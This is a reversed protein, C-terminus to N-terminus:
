AHHGKEEEVLLCFHFCIILVLFFGTLEAALSAPELPLMAPM